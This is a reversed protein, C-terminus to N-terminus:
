GAAQSRSVDTVAGTRARTTSRFLHRQSAAPDLRERCIAQDAPGASGTGVRGGRRIGHTGPCDDLGRHEHHWAFLLVLCVEAGGGHTSYYAFGLRAAMGLVWLLAAGAGAQSMIAGDERWVRTTLGSLAGLTTGVATLLVILALDNGGIRFPRLYNLGAVAILVCPLVISRTTLPRRRIQRLVLGILLLDIIYDTPSM